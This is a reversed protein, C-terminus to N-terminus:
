GCAKPAWVVKPEGNNAYLTGKPVWVQKFIKPYNRIFGKHKLHYWYNSHLAFSKQKFNTKMKDKHM